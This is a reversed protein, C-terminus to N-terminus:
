NKKFIRSKMRSLSVPTIGLYSALHNQNIKNVLESQNEMMLIYREEPSKTLFTTIRDEAQVLLGELISRGLKEMKPSEKYIEILNDYRLLYLQTDEIAQYSLPSSEGKIIGSMIAIMSNEVYFDQTIDRGEHYYYSRICGEEVFGLDKTIQGAELFFEGKPIKKLTLNKSVIEYETPTLFDFRSMFKQLNKM